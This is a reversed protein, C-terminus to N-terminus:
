LMLGFRMAKTTECAVKTNPVQITNGTRGDHILWARGELARYVTACIRKRTYAPVWGTINPASFKPTEVREWPNFAGGQVSRANAVYVVAQTAVSVVTVEHGDAALDNAAKTADNLISFETAQGAATTIAYM